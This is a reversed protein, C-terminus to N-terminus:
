EILKQCSLGRNKQRFLFAQKLIQHSQNAGVVDEEFIYFLYANSINLFQVLILLMENVGV